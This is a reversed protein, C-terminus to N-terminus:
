TRRALVADYARRREWGTLAALATAAVKTPVGDSLLGDVASAVDAPLADDAAAPHLCVAVRGAGALEPVEGDAARLPRGHDQVVTASRRGSEAARHLLDGVQARGVSLVLRSGPPVARASALGGADDALVLPARSPCAAAAALPAPLGVTDLVAAAAVREPCTDGPLDRTAVVLTRGGPEGRTPGALRRADADAAIVEDAAALEAALRQDPRLAAADALLLVLTAPSPTSVVDVTVLADPDQLAAVLPRPLDAAALTADTAFTGPLRLPGRRVVVPGSPDWSPNALADLSMREGGAAIRLRVPGAMPAPPDAEAGVAVICTGRETVVPDATFELTKGHTARIAPHGRGAFRM